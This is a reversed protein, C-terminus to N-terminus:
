SVSISLAAPAWLGEGPHSSKRERLDSTSLEILKNGREECQIATARNPV